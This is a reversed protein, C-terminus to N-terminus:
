YDSYQFAPILRDQVFDFPDYRSRKRCDDAAGIGSVGFWVSETKFVSDTKGWFFDRASRAVFLLYGNVGRGHALTM